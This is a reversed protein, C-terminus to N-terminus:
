WTLDVEEEWECTSPCTMLESKSKSACGGGNPWSARCLEFLRFYRPSSDKAVCLGFICMESKWNIRVIPVPLSTKQPREAGTILYQSRSSIYPSEGAHVEGTM